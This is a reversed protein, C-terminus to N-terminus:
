DRSKGLDTGGFSCEFVVSHEGSNRRQWEREEQRAQQYWEKLEKLCEPWLVVQAKNESIVQEIHRDIAASYESDSMGM